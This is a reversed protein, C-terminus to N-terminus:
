EIEIPNIYPVVDEDKETRIEVSEIQLSECVEEIKKKDHGPSATLALILHNKVTDIYNQAVSTYAYDGVSRHAEDVILLSVDNLDTIGYELDNRLTQPTCIIIKASKWIKKRKDSTVQGTLLIVDEAALEMLSQYSDFHQQALPKTPTLMIIRKNPEKTLQYATLLIAIITKGLATPVVVLTNKEIANAFIVQQYTRAEVTNKKILPHDIFETSAM